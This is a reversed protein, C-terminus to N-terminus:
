TCRATPTRGGGPPWAAGAACPLYYEYEKVPVFGFRPYYDLVSDNAFLYVGDMADRYEALVHQLLWRNLGQGRCSDDTMVTGLQLYHRIVGQLEFQMRNVSVNSVVREGDLLVHPLYDAGWGGAEYWPAFDIGFTKQALANFSARVAANQRVATSHIYRHSTM